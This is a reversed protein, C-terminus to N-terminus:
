NISIRVGVQPLLMNTRSSKELFSVNAANDIYPDTLYTTHNGIHYAVKLELGIDDQKNLPIDVGAAGGYTLAWHSKSSNSYSSNYSSYYTLREVDVTSFFVNWGASIDLFPKLKRFKNPQLRAMAMLSFINNTASVKFEDYFGVIFGSFYQTARGREQIGLELGLKLPIDKGPQYLINGRLGFGIEDNIEKFEMQPIGIQATFSTTFKQANVTCYALSFVIVWYYKM